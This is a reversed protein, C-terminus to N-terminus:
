KTGTALKRCPKRKTLGGGQKPATVVKEASKAKKTLEEDMLTRAEALANAADHAMYIAEEITKGQTNLGRIDLGQVAYWGPVPTILLRLGNDIVIFPKTKKTSTVM